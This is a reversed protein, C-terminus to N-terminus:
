GDQELLRGISAVVKKTHPCRWVARDHVVTAGLPHTDPHMPCHPWVAPLGEQWLAEVAWEQVQDAFDAIQQVAGGDGHLQIGWGSGDPTHLWLFPEEWSQVDAFRVTPRVPCNAYLDSLVPRLTAPLVEDM